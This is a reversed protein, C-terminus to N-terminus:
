EWVYKVGSDQGTGPYPSALVYPQSVRSLGTSGGWYTSRFFPPGAQRYRRRAMVIILALVAIVIVLGIASLGAFVPATTMVGHLRASSDKLSARARSLLDSASTTLTTFAASM